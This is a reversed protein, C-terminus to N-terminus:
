IINTELESRELDHDLCNDNRHRLKFAAMYANKYRSYEGIHLQSFFISWADIDKLAESYIDDCQDLAKLLRRRYKRPLSGHLLSSNIQKGMIYSELYEPNKNFLVLIKEAILIDSSSYQINLESKEQIANAICYAKVKKNGILFLYDILLEKSKKAYSKAKRIFEKYSCITKSEDAEYHLLWLLLDHESINYISKKAGETFDINSYKEIILTAVNEDGSSEKPLSILNEENLLINELKTM